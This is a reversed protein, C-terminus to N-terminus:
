ADTDCARWVKFCPYTKQSRLICVSFIIGFIFYMIAIVPMMLSQEGETSVEVIMEVGQNNSPTVESGDCSTSCLKIDIVSDPVSLMRKQRLRHPLTSNFSLSQSLTYVCCHTSLRYRWIIIIGVCVVVLIVSLVAGATAGVTAGAAHTYNLM